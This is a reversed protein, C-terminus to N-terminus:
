VLPRPKIGAQKVRVALWLAATLGAALGGRLVWLQVLPPGRVEIEVARANILEPPDGAYLWLRGTYSGPADGHLLWSFSASGGPQIAEGAEQIGDVLGALELRTRATQVKAALNQPPRVQLSFLGGEGTRLFVPRRIQMTWVSLRSQYTDVVQAPPLFVLGLGALFAASLLIYIWRRM